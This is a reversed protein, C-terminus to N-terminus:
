PRDAHHSFHQHEHDHAPNQLAKGHALYQKGAEQQGCQAPQQQTQKGIVEGSQQNRLHHVGGREAAKVGSGNMEHLTAETRTLLTLPM